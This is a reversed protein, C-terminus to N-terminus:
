NMFKTLVRLFFNAKTKFMIINKAFQCFHLFLECKTRLFNGKRHSEHELYCWM